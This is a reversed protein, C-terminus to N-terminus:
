WHIKKHVFIIIKKVETNLLFFVFLILTFFLIIYLNRNIGLNALQEEDKMIIQRKKQKRKTNLLRM